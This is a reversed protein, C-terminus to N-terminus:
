EHKVFTFILLWMESPLIELREAVHMVTWVMQQRSRCLVRKDAADMEPDSWHMWLQVGAWTTADPAARMARPISALTSYKEYRGIFMDIITDPAWIKTVSPIYLDCYDSWMKELLDDITKVESM